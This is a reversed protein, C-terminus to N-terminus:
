KERAAGKVTTLGNYDFGTYRTHRANFVLYAQRGDELTLVVTRPGTVEWRATWYEPNEAHGDPHFQLEETSKEGPRSVKNVWTWQFSTLAHQFLEKDNAGAVDSDERSLREASVEVGEDNKGSLHNGDNGLVVTDVYKGESWVIVYKRPIGGPNVCRWTGDKAISGDAHFTKTEETFWKWQGTIPDNSEAGLATKFVGISVIFLIQLIAKM